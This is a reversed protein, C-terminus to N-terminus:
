IKYMELKTYASDGPLHLNDIVPARNGTTILEWHSLSPKNIVFTGNVFIDFQMTVKNYDPLVWSGNNISKVSDHVVYYTLLTGNDQFYMKYFCCKASSGFEPLTALYNSTSTDIYVEELNWLGNILQDETIKKCSNFYGIVIVCISICVAPKFM